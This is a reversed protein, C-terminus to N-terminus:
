TPGRVQALGGPGTFAIGDANPVIPTYRNQLAAKYSIESTLANLLRLPLTIQVGDTHYGATELAALFVNIAVTIPTNM